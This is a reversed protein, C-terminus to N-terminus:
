NSFGSIGLPTAMDCDLVVCPGSGDGWPDAIYELWEDADLYRIFSDWDSDGDFPLMTTEILWYDGSQYWDEIAVQAHGPPLIIMAHMNASQIASAMLLATEVCVGSGSYLVDDPLLIRQNYGETMSFSGMNYRMGLDSMAAQIGIVQWVVNLWYEDSGYAGLQYGPLSNFMGDTYGELWDIATRRLTLVGESEPTLWALLDCDSYTGFEDNWLMFDYVSMLKVKRTEQVYIKGTDNDLVTLKLQADKSSTLDIYGTLLAPKIYLKTIQESLQVKQEYPQTFGPIEVRVLVDTDGRESTATLNVVSDMTAYLNPYIVDSTIFDVEVSKARTLYSYSVEPLMGDTLEGAVVPAPTTDLDGKAGRAGGTLLVVALAIVAVAGVAIGGILLGKKKGAKAGKGQVPAYGQAPPTYGQAPPTYGQAPPTYGQTPPPTYSQAPPTYSQAPPPTYGQAPPTYGQAPPPTNQLGTPAGCNSCFAERESLPDGCQMCYKAM